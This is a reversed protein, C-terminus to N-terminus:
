KIGNENGNEISYWLIDGKERLERQNWSTATYGEFVCGLHVSIAYFFRSFFTCLFCIVAKEQGGVKSWEWVNKKGNMRGSGFQRKNTYDLLIKMEM